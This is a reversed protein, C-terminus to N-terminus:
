REIAISNFPVDPTEAVHAWVHVHPDGRFHWTLSPGELRFGDWLDDGRRYWPEFFSLSSAALGGQAALAARVQARDQGRFPEVLIEVLRGAEEAQDPSLESLPLGRQAAPASFRIDSEEPVRTIRARERQPGDLLDYLGTAAVAQPFFVNGPHHSREVFSGSWWTGTAHGYFIPGGFAVRPDSQGGARLTMHRGTMLFQFPGTSPDGFLAISQHRGWGGADDAQKRDYREHWAPDILQEYIARILARQDSTFFDSDVSPKTVNWNASVRARLLGRDGDVHNWPFAVEARQTDSLGHLLQAALAEASDSRAALSARPLGWSAAALASAGLGQLFTRRDADM